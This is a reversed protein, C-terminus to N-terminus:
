TAAGTRRESEPHCEVGGSGRVAIEWEDAGCKEAEQRIRCCDATLVRTVPLLYYGM